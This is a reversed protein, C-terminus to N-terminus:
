KFEIRLKQEEALNDWDGNSVSPIIIDVWEIGEVTESKPLFVVKGSSKVAGLMESQLGSEMMWESEIQEGTNTVITTQDLYFDRQEEVTNEVDFELVIAPQIDGAEKNDYYWADEESIEREGLEGHTLTTVVSDQVVEFGEVITKKNQLEPVSDEDEGETVDEEATSEEVQEDGDESTIGEETTLEEEPTEEGSSCAGLLLLSLVSSGVLVKKMNVEGKLKLHYRKVM